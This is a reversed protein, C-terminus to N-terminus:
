SSLSSVRSKYEVEDRIHYAKDKGIGFERRL